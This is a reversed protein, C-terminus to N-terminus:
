PWAPNSESRSDGAYSGVHVGRKRNAGLSAVAERHRQDGQGARRQEEEVAREIKNGCAFREARREFEVARQGAHRKALETSAFPVDGPEGRQQRGGGAAKGLYVGILHLKLPWPPHVALQDDRRAPDIM